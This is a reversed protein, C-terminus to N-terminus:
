CRSYNSQEHNCEELTSYVRTFARINFVQNITDTNEILYNAIINENSVNTATPRLYVMIKGANPFSFIKEYYSQVLPTMGSYFSPPGVVFDIEGQNLQKIAEYYDSYKKITIPIKKDAYYKEAVKIAASYSLGGIILNSSERYRKSDRKKYLGVELDSQLLASFGLERLTQDLETISGWIILDVNNDSIKDILEDKSSASRYVMTQKLEEGLSDLITHMKNTLVERPFVRPNITTFVKQNSPFNVDTNSIAYGPSLLLVIVVCLKAISRIM